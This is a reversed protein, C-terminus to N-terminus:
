EKDTVHSPEEVTYECVYDEGPAGARLLRVVEDHEQDPTPKRDKLYIGFKQLLKVVKVTLWLGGIVQLITLIISKM